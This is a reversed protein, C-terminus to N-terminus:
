NMNMNLLKNVDETESSVSNPLNLVDTSSTRIERKKYGEKRETEEIM